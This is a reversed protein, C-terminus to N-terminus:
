KKLKKRINQMSNDVAKVKIGAAKAIQEYSLGQLFLELVKMERSSLLKKLKASLIVGEEALIVIKEPNLSGSDLTVAFGDEGNIGSLSISNNLPKHKARNSSKVADLIQRKVCISAFTKFSAERDPTYERIAKYLGIMGEQIIDDYDGGIIFFGRAISKVKDKYRYLLEAESEYDGDQARQALIEDSVIDAM